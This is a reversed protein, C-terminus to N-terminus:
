MQKRWDWFPLILLSVRLWVCLGYRSLRLGKLPSGTAYMYMNRWVSRPVAKLDTVITSLVPLTVRRWNFCITLNWYFTSMLLSSLHARVFVLPLELRWLTMCHCPPPNPSKVSLCCCCRCYVEHKSKQAMNRSTRKTWIREEENSAKRCLSLVKPNDFTFNYSFNNITSLFNFVHNHEHWELSRSVM